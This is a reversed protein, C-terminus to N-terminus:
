DNNFIVNIESIFSSSTNVTIEKEAFKLTCTKMKKNISFIFDRNAIISRSLKLFNSQPFKERLSGINNSVFHVEGNSVFIYTYSGDAKLLVVHDPNLIIIKNNSNVMIKGCDVPKNTDLYRQVKEVTSRLEIRNVPKLLYSFAHHKIADMAYNAYASVMIIALSPKCERIKELLEIGNIGPMKIDLFLLDPNSNILIPFINIPNSIKQTINIQSYESLLIELTDLAEVEDDILVTNIKPM